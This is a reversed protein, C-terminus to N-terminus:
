AVMWVDMRKIKGQDKKSRSRALSRAFQAVSSLNKKEKKKGKSRIGAALFSVRTNKNQLCFITRNTADPVPVNM